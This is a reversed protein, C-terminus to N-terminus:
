YEQLCFYRQYMSTCPIALLINGSEDIWGTMIALVGALLFLPSIELCNSGFEPFDGTRSTMRMLVISVEALLSVKQVESYTGVVRLFGAYEFSRV